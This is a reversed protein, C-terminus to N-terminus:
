SCSNKGSSSICEQESNYLQGGIMGTLEVNQFYNVPDQRIKVGNEYSYIEIHLHNGTSDGTSGVSGIIQGMTVNQGVRVFQSLRIQHAYLSYYEYKGTSEDYNGHGIVTYNGYSSHFENTIVVGSDIAYINANGPASIDTGYHHRCCNRIPHVRWGYASTVENYTLDLPYGGFVLSVQDLTGSYFYNLVEKYSSGNKIMEYAKAQDMINNSSDCVGSCSSRYQTAVFRNDNIIFETFTADIANKIKEMTELDDILPARYYKGDSDPGTAITNYNDNIIGDNMNHCGETVSCYIQNMACSKIRLQTPINDVTAGNLAYLYNKAVVAMVKLFEEPRNTAYGEVYLVGQLYEYLSMEDIVMNNNCDLVIVTSNNATFYNSSGYNNKQYEDYAAVRLFIEEVIRKSDSEINENEKNEFYFKKIFDEELYERYHDIDLKYKKEYDEIVENTKPDIVDEPCSFDIGEYKKGGSGRCMHEGNPALYESGNKYCCYSVMNESLDAVKEKSKKFDVFNSPLLDLINGEEDTKGDTGSDTLFPDSYTLTATILNTNLNVNYEDKYNKYVEDIEEYFDNKEKEQCEEDTCWGRFTLLNGLREGLESLNDTTKNIIENIYFLPSMILCIITVIIIVTFCGSVGGFSASFFTIIKKGLDANFKANGSLEEKEENKKNSFGFLSKKNLPNKIQKTATTLAEQGIKTKSFEEVAKGGLPGAVTNAATKAGQKVINRKAQDIRNQKNLNSPNNKITNGQNFQSNRIPINPKNPINNTSKVNNLGDNAENNHTPINLDQQQIQSNPSASFNGKQPFKENKDKKENM